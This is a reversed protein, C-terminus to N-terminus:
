AGPKLAAFGISILIAVVYGAVVLMASKGRSTKAAHAFGLALLVITWINFLDLSALARFVAPSTTPDSLFGLNTPLLAQIEDPTVTDRGAVIAALFVSKFVQPLWGYNTVSFYQAYRGQHGFLKFLLMFLGAIVLLFLASGVPAFYPGVSKFKMAMKVAQDQQQESMHQKEFQARLTSELDLRNSVLIGTILSVVLILILPVLFDPRSAIERFTSDPAVIVGGIRSLANSKPEIPAPTLESTESM